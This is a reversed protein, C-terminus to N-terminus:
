LTKVSPVNQFSDEDLRLLINYSMDIYELKTLNAFDKERLQSIRNHQFFVAGTNSPLNNPVTLLDEGTVLISKNRGEGIEECKCNSPCGQGGSCSAENEEYATVSQYFAKFRAIPPKGHCRLVAMLHNSSSVFVPPYSHGCFRGRAPATQDRGDFFELFCNECLPQDRLRFEHFTLRIINGNPVSIRWTCFVDDLYYGPFSPSFFYGSMNSLNESCAEKAFQPAHQCYENPNEDVYLGTLAILGEKDKVEGKIIVQFASVASLPVQGYIWNQGTNTKWVWIPVKRNNDTKQYITLTENGLGRLM